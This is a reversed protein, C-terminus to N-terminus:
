RKRLDVSIRAVDKLTVMVTHHQEGLDPHRFLVNHPGITLPLNGIPTEGIKEGDIWVEAWPLANLALTGKPVDVSISSVRGPSVQIVRSVRYGLAENVLQLEHRGASVMIRDSRSSGLLNDNEFVQMEVPANVAVWGSVPAGEVSKMPVVLSATMGAEITVTQKVSGLDSELSVTHEGPALDVVMMPSTGVPVGDVTVKAGAPETRVQLQGATAGAAPLEIYQASEQGATITVAITRATSGARLEVNHSGPSLPISAPTTGRPQGDVIVQAGEPNTTIALTGTAVAAPPASFLGRSALVGGGVLVILAVAAVALKKWSGAPRDADGDFSDFSVPEPERHHEVHAPKSGRSPGPRTVVSDAFSQIQLDAGSSATVPIPPPASKAGVPSPAPMPTPASAMPTRTGRAPTGRAPTEVVGPSAPRAAIPSPAPMPTADAIPISLGLAPTETYSPQPKPLPVPTPGPKASSAFGQRAGAPPISAASNHAAAHYKTLFAELSAPSALTEGDGIVKDLEDRAEIASAFANRSDLQLARGLWGRLGPPLPEFGGRASVAWTSAVVDAIRTPYEDDRLPRGLILSLAVVGVQTVDARQDFRAVGATRPLAIRLDAWYREPSYRLQELAAGLVYEVIVLRANPTVILREPGIAGHAVERTSEHLMAVAPVLQRILCLATNIDLGLRREEANLLLESLRVGPTHDSVVALTADRDTMREVGRVRGFSTHRFNALHSVRERLAFEFSPVAALEGRLCLLELADSGTPDAVHRREGLGDRFV